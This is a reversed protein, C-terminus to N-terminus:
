CQLYHFKVLYLWMYVIQIHASYTASYWWWWWWWWRERERESERMGREIERGRQRFSHNKYIGVHVTAYARYRRASSLILKSVYIIWNKKISYNRVLSLELVKIDLWNKMIHCVLILFFKVFPVYFVGFIFCVFM